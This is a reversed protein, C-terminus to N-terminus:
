SEGGEARKRWQGCGFEQKTRPWLTRGDQTVIPSQRRCHGLVLEGRADHIHWFQCTACPGGMNVKPANTAAPRLVSRLKALIKKM